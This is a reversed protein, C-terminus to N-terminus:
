FVDGIQKAKGPKVFSGCVKWTDGGVSVVFPMFTMRNMGATMHFDSVPKAKTTMWNLLLLTELGDTLAQLVNGPLVKM